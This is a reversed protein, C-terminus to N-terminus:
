RFGVEDYITVAEKIKSAIESLSSSDEKFEGFSLVVDSPKVDKNVPYEYNINTLIEQVEPTLLFEAFKTANEKNKSAKTVAVGSINIHTGRDDQNPFIIGIKKGIEVDKPNESTLMLGIYYTNMVAYKGAGAVMAKAQDRDGGKPPQALNALLGTAWAKAKESGDNKIISALLTKSYPATASRMLIQGNFKPDALDEYTKIEPNPTATKDYAIIRARKTMAFWTNDKDRLNEPIVKELEDSKISALLGAEKAQLLNSVDATIFIDAPTKDGESDMRKILEGAKAQTAKIEIGTKKTFLEYIKNDADYHRASYIHLTDANMSVFLSSAVIAGSLIKNM